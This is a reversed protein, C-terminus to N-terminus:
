NASSSSAAASGESKSAAATTKQVKIMNEVVSPDAGYVLKSGDVAVYRMTDDTKGLYLTLTAEKKTSADTYTIVVTSRNATDLGYSALKDDAAHYDVCNTLQLSGIGGALSTLDDKKTYDTTKGGETVSVKKLSGSGISPLTDLQAIDSNNFYLASVLGAAVTYVKKKDGLTAYYDSEAQNGIYITEEKGGDTTYWITYAPKDLGYDALADPDKLQRTASLTRIEGETGDLVNQNLILEKDKDDTWKDDAKTFSITSEGDTYKIKSLSKEDVLKVTESAADGSKKDESRKNAIKLGAYAAILVVLVLGLIIVHKKTKM